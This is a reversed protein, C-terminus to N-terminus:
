DCYKYCSEVFTTEIDEDIIYTHVIVFSSADTRNNNYIFSGSSQVFLFLPANYTTM